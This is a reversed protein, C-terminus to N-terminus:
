EVVQWILGESELEKMVEMQNLTIKGNRLCDKRFSKRIIRSV